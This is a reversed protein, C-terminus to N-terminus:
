YYAYGGHADVVSVEKSLPKLLDTEEGKFQHLHHYILLIMSLM